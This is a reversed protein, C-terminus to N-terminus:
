SGLSAMFLNSCSNCLSVSVSQGDASGSGNSSRNCCYVSVKHVACCFVVKVLLKSWSIVIKVPMSEECNSSQNVSMSDAASRVCSFQVLSACAFDLPKVQVKIDSASLESLLQSSILSKSLNFSQLESICIDM